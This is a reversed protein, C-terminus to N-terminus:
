AAEEDEEPIVGDAGPAMDGTPNEKLDLQVQALLFEVVEARREESVIGEFARIVDVAEPSAFFTREVAGGPDQREDRLYQRAEALVEKLARVRPQPLTGLVALRSAYRLVERADAHTEVRGAMGALEEIEDSTTLPRGPAKKEVAEAPAPPPDGPGAEAQRPSTPVPPSPAGALDGSWAGKEGPDPALGAKYVKVLKMAVRQGVQAVDRVTRVSPSKARGNAKAKLLGALAHRVAERQEPPVSEWLRVAEEPDLDKAM